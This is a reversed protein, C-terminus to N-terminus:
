EWPRLKGIQPFLQPITVGRFPWRIASVARPSGLFRQAYTAPLANPYQRYASGPPWHVPLTPRTLGLRFARYPISSGSPVEGPIPTVPFRRM